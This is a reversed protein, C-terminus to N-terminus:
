FHPLDEQSRVVVKKGLEKVLNRENVKTNKVQGGTDTKRYSDEAILKLFSKQAIQNKLGGTNLPLRFDLLGGLFKSQTM